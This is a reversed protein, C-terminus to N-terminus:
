SRFLKPQLTEHHMAAHDWLFANSFLPGDECPINMIDPQLVALVSQGETQGLPVLRVAVSVLNSVVSQLYLPQVTEAAIGKRAAAAGVAVPMTLPPLDFAWIANCTTVFANGQLEAERRREPTTAFAKSEADIGLLTEVSKAHYARYFFVADSQISGHAILSQLCARLSDASDVTGKAVLTELGHSYAFGGIPFAPSLWQSLTLLDATDTMIPTATSTVTRAGTDM